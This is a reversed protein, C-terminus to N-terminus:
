QGLYIKDLIEIMEKMYENAKDLPIDVVEKNANKWKMSNLGIGRATAVKTMFVKAWEENFWFLGDATLTGDELLKQRNAKAVVKLQKAEYEATLRAVESTVELETASDALNDRAVDEYNMTGDPMLILEM